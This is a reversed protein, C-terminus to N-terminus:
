LKNKKDEIYYSDSFCKTYHYCNRSYFIIIVKKREICRNLYDRDIIPNKLIIKFHTDNNYGM